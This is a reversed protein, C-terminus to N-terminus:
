DTLEEPLPRGAVPVTLQVPWEFSSPLSSADDALRYNGLTPPLEAVVSPTPPPPPIEPTGEARWFYRGLLLALLVAAAALASGPWLRGRRRPTSGPVVDPIAALLRAELGAPVPPEPLARLRAALADLDDNSRSMSM